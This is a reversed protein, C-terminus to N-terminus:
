SSCRAIPVVMMGEGNVDDSSGRGDNNGRCHWGGCGLILVVMM